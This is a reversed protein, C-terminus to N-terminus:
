RETSSSFINRMYNMINIIKNYVLLRLLMSLVVAFADAAASSTFRRACLSLTPLLLLKLEEETPRPNSPLLSFLESFEDQIFVAVLCYLRVPSSYFFLRCCCCAVSFSLCSSSRSISLILIFFVRRSHALSRSFSLTHQMPLM